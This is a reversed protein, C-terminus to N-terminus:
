GSEGVVGLYDGPALALSVDSVATQWQSRQRYQVVLEDIALAGSTTSRPARAGTETLAARFITM